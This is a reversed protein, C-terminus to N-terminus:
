KLITYSSQTEEGSAGTAAAQRLVPTGPSCLHGLSPDAIHLVQLWKYNKACKKKLTNSSDTKVAPSVQLDYLSSLCRLTLALLTMYVSSLLM